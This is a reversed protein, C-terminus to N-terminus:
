KNTLIEFNGNTPNYWAFGKEVALQKLLQTQKKEERAKNGLRNLACLILVAALFLALVRLADKLHLTM